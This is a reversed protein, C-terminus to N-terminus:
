VYFEAMDDLRLCGLVRDDESRACGCDIDIIGPLHLIRGFKAFDDTVYHVPTHGIIVTKDEFPRPPNERVSRDWLRDYRTQAPFAHVLLFNRGGAEIEMQDPLANVWELLKSREEPPLANVADRTPQAGNRNWRESAGPLNLLMENLMMWEHNGMLMVINERAMIDTLIAAGDPHRDIVDGIIYMVDAPGFGIKELMKDYRAKDGHIDSMCYIM